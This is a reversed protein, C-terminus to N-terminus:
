APEIELIPANRSLDDGETPLVRVIKVRPPLADGGYRVRHFTKMVEVLAVTAGTEIVDGTKVFAEAGPSPRAYYRGGLPTKFVLGHAGESAVDSAAGAAAQAGLSPDLVVLTTGHGVPAKARGGGAVEVVAGHAGAPVVLKAVVGLVELEGLVDGTRLVTGVAPLNRALGPKSATLVLKGERKHLVVSETTEHVRGNM